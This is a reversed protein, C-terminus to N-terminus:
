TDDRLGEPRNVDPKVRGKGVSDVHWVLYGLLQEAEMISSAIIQPRPRAMPDKKLTVLLVGRFRNCFAALLEDDTFQALMADLEDATM